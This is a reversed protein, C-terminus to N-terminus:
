RSATINCCCTLPIKGDQSLPSVRPSDMHLQLWSDTKSQLCGQVTSQVDNGQAGAADLGVNRREACVLEVHTIRPHAEQAVTTVTRNRIQGHGGGRSLTHMPKATHPM